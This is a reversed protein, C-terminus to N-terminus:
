GLLTLAACDAGDFSISGTGGVKLQVYLSITTAGVPLTVLWNSNVSHHVSANNFGFWRHTTPTGDIDIWYEVHNGADSAVASFSAMAMMTREVTPRSAAPITITVIATASSISASGLGVVEGQFGFPRVHRLIPVAAARLGDQVKKDTDSGPPSYLDFNKVPLPLDTCYGNNGLGDGDTDIQIGDSNTLRADVKITEVLTQEDTNLILATM